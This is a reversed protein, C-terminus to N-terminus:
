TGYLRQTDDNQFNQRRVWYPNDTFRISGAVPDNWNWARQSGDPRFIDQLRNGESLDLQRQGFHNFQLFVNQNDYGTGPRGTAESNSYNVSVSTNLKETLQLSGNFGVQNRDLESEPYIGSETINSLSLRYSYNDGGNALSLNNNFSVGTDFFDEVNGPNAVWPTTQDLLGNVNDFSYWQRVMRGDLRPGWSEDTAFDAVFQGQNNVSFPANAGGGYQNQYDPLGYVQRMTTGSNLTVGIRGQNASGNKTTIQIVGNAARAGYLAAASPGKLVSVSKVDNPNIVSAANGYDYGGGGTAQGADSFNSNDLPVGDVVFLPENNGTVSKAGRLVIRSSGGLANSNSINAGAVKGTLTSVFNTEQTTNLEEGEVEQVSYGLSRAQREVGLATVVVDDLTAIDQALAENVTVTEQDVTVRITETKYGIYSIRLDYMGYPINNLTFNGDADTAAGKNISQIFINASILPEGSKQDTLQGEITGTNQALATGTCLLFVIGFMLVSRISKYM